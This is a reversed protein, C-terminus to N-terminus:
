LGTKKGSVDALYRGVSEELGIEEARVAAEYQRSWFRIHQAADALEARMLRALPGGEALFGSEEFARLARERDYRLRVFDAHWGSPRWELRVYGARPDDDFPSGVSGSNVILTEGLRRRWPRHTHATLFLTVPPVRTALEEEPHDARLGDRNGHLTGHTAHIAGGDPGALTLHDEWGRLPEAAAGLRGAAWRAFRVLEGRPGAAPASGDRVALLLTEHNGRLMSWGRGALLALCEGSSPGRSVLDGNVVVREAGWRAIDEVVAELAPLNGHVDSLVAIKM